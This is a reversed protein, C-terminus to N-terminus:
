LPGTKHVAYHPEPPPNAVGAVVMSFVEREVHFPRPLNEAAVQSYIWPYKFQNGNVAKMQQKRDGPTLIQIILLFFYFGLWPLPLFIVEM